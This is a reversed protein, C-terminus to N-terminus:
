DFKVTLNSDDICIFVVEFRGKVWLGLLPIFKAKRHFKIFHRSFIYKLLTSFFINRFSNRNIRVSSAHLILLLIFYICTAGKIDPRFSNKSKFSACRLIFETLVGARTEPRVYSYKVAYKVIYFRGPRSESRDPNIEIKCKLLHTRKKETCQNIYITNTINTLCLINEHARNSTRKAFNWTDVTGKDLCQIFWIGEDKKQAVISKSYNLKLLMGDSPCLETSSYFFQKFPLM